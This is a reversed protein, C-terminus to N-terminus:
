PIKLIYVSKCFSVGMLDFLFIIIYRVGIPVFPYNRGNEEVDISSMSSTSHLLNSVLYPISCGGVIRTKHGPATIITLFKSYIYVRKYLFLCIIPDKSLVRGVYGNVIPGRKM